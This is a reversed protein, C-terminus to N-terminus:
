EAVKRGSVLWQVFASRPILIRRGLKFSPIERRSIANYVGARSINRKGILSRAQEVTITEANLQVTGEVEM